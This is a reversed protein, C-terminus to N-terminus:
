GVGPGEGDVGEGLAGDTGFEGGVLAGDVGFTGDVELGGDAGLIGGMLAGPCSLFTGTPVPSL